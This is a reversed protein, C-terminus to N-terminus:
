VPALQHVAQSRRREIRRTLGISLEYLVLLPAM